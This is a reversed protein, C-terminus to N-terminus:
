AAIRAEDSRKLGRSDEWSFTVRDGAKAGALKLAILPNSSVSRGFQAELVSTGNLQLTLTRVFHPPIIRGASDARLGNEMPHSILVRVDAVGRSTLVARIKMPTATDLAQAAETSEGASCGGITVKVQKALSYDKGAARAVLRVPSTEAVRIRLSAYPVLGESVNFRAVYPYPNRDIFLHLSSTGPINSQLQVPVFGANDPLEPIELLLESTRAIDRMALQAFATALDKADFAPQNWGALLISPKIVAAVGALGAIGVRCLASRRTSNM